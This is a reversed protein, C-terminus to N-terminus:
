KIFDEVLHVEASMQVVNSQVILPNPSSLRSLGGLDGLIM